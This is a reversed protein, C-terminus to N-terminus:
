KNKPKKEKKDEKKVTEVDIYNSTKAGRELYYQLDKKDIFAKHGYKNIIEIKEM